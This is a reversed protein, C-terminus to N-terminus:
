SILIYVLCPIKDICVLFIAISLMVTFTMESRTFSILLSYSHYGHAPIFEGLQVYSSNAIIVFGM